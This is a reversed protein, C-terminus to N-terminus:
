RHCGASAPWVACIEFVPLSPEAACCSQCCYGAINPLPYTVRGVVLAGPASRAPHSPRPRRRALNPQLRETAGSPGLAPRSAWVSSTCRSEPRPARTGRDCASRACTGRQVRQQADIRHEALYFRVPSLDPADADAAPQSSPGCEALARAAQGVTVGSIAGVLVNAHRSYTQPEMQAGGVRDTDAPLTRAQDCPLIPQSSRSIKSLPNPLQPRVARPLLRTTM